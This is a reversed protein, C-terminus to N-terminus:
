KFLKEVKRITDEACFVLVNDGPQIHSTGMAVFGVGDRIIGGINVNEPLRIDKIPTKVIASKEGAVFEVIEVDALTLCRVNSVNGGLILKYIHSAALSKKNIISGINLNEALPVYDLNEVEAVTRKVGFNKATLCALINTEANGTLAVFADYSEIDENKLLELDRGDGNIVLVNDTNEIVRISKEKNQEIVKINKNRPLEQIARVGIRSGGGLIMINNIEFDEKGAQIRVQEINDKTTIFYVIDGALIKDKGKAIIDMGLRKIMIIRVTSNEKDFAEEITKNVIPANERLKTALLVLAGDSFEVYQRVWGRKLASVIEKAALMEPYILSDVGLRQFFELNKPLLYEYNDIRALTKKAGLNTALLCATINTSEYPTVAVFLDANEVQAEKLDKLSTPLGEIGLIDYNSELAKVKEGNEDLLIITHNEKSLLKALHTGVEGAGAIIIRM